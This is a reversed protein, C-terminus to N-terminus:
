LINKAYTNIHNYRNKFVNAAQKQCVRCKCFHLQLWALNSYLEQQKSVSVFM